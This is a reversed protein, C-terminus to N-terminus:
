HKRKRLSWGLLVASAALLALWLAMPSEDGTKPPTYPATPTPSPTPSPTATPTPSPTVSPEPTPSPTVSPEPTPSPTTSPSPSPTIYQNVLHYGEVKTEYKEVPAERIVYQIKQGDRMEPLDNFSYLWLGEDNPKVVTSAIFGDKGEEYLFVIISEPRQAEDDGVWRKVGNIDIKEEDPVQKLRNHVRLLAHRAYHLTGDSGTWVADKQYEDNETERYLADDFTVLYDNYGNPQIAADYAVSGIRTERLTYAAVHGNVYLPLDQWTYTGGNEGLVCKYSEGTAAYLPRGDCWLEVEVPVQQGTPTSADWDAEVTM